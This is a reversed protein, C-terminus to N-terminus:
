PHLLQKFDHVMDDVSMGFPFMLRLQGAPDIVYVFASHDILYTASTGAVVRKDAVVGYAKRVEALREPSGTLSTFSGGFASTYERLRAPTDREPDVTVFVIRFRRADAGLRMRAQALEALTTPCVDPCFTYGFWLAVVNGRERSLRFDKGDQTTLAFDSATKPPTLLGGKFEAGHASGVMALVIALAAIGGGRCCLRM